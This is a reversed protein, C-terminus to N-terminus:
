GGSNGKRPFRRREAAATGLFKCACGVSHGLLREVVLPCRDHYDRRGGCAQTHVISPCTKATVLTGRGPSAPVYELNLHELLALGALGECM